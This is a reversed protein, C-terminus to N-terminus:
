PKAMCAAKEKKTRLRKEEEQAKGKVPCAPKRQQHVKQLKVACAVRKKREQLPCERYKHREGGCKYCEVRWKKCKTEQRRLEVRCTMVRSALIKFKNQPTLKGKQEGKKRYHQAQHRFRRYKQCERERREELKARLSTLARKEKLLNSMINHYQQQSMM